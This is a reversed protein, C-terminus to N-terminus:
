GVKAAAAARVHPKLDFRFPVILDGWENMSLEASIDYEGPAYSPQDRELRLRLKRTEEGIQAFAWQVREVYAAGRKSTRQKEEVAQTRVVCRGVIKM